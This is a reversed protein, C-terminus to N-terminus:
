AAGFTKRPIMLSVIGEGGSINAEALEAPVFFSALEGHSGLM